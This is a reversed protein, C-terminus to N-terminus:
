RCGHAGGLPKCLRKRSRITGRSVVGHLRANEGDPIATLQCPAQAGCYPLHVCTILYGSVCTHASTWARRASLRIPLPKVAINGYVGVEDGLGAQGPM